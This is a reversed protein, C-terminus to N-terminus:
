SRTKMILDFGWAFGLSHVFCGRLGWVVDDERSSGNEETRLCHQGWTLFLLWEWILSFLVIPPFTDCADVCPAWCRPTLPLHAPRSSAACLPLDHVGAWGKHGAGPCRSFVQWGTRSARATPGQCTSRVRFKCELLGKQQRKSCFNISDQTGNQCSPGTHVLAIIGM